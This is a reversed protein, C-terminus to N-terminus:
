KNKQSNKLRDLKKILGDYKQRMKYIEQERKEMDRLMDYAQKQNHTSSKYKNMIESLEIM